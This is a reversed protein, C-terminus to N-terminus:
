IPFVFGSFGFNNPPPKMVRTSLSCCIEVALRLAAVARLNARAAPKSEARAPPQSVAREV